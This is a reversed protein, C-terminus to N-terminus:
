PKRERASAQESLATERPACSPCSSSRILRRSWANWVCAVVLFSLGLYLFWGVSFAFKGGLAIVAGALGLALPGYGRRSRARYALGLLAVGLLAVTIPLLYPTEFLFGLGASSLLGAYAPWCAPCIGVPLLASGVGPVGALLQRWAFRSSKKEGTGSALRGHKLAAVIQDVPPDGRFGASGAPYLRCSEVGDVPKAGAIDRGDVLITPSGYGLAHDPSDAAKLDGETWSAALGTQAFARLLAARAEKINPCNLDYILEVRRKM